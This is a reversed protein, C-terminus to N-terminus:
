PAAAPTTVVVERERRGGGGGALGGVIAAIMGLLLAALVGWFVKGTTDAAKATQTAVQGKVKDLSSELRQALEQADQESLSTNGAISQLILERDMKGTRAVESVVDKTTAELQEPTVPEKGEA